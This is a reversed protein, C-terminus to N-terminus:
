AAGGTMATFNAAMTKLVVQSQWNTCAQMLGATSSARIGFMRVSVGHIGTKVVGGNAEILAAIADFAINRAVTTAVDGMSYPPVRKLALSLDNSFGIAADLKASM